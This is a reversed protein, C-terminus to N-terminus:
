FNFGLSFRHVNQLFGFDHYGYDLKLTHNGLVFKIGGGASFGGTDNEFKQGIRLAFMDKYWYELGANYKELNDSPHSGELNFIAQHEERSFVEMSGGFKFNIPLPCDEQIFKLDPGFNSLVMAIKFKRFGTRYLTGVDMGWGSAMEEEYLENLYKFTVGISFRDTLNRAYSLTLAYDKASFTEGTIAIDGIGPKLPERREMDGADLMYFALGCVGGIQPTPYALGLFEYNIDAPYDIHTLVVERSELQTLGAPNYYVASADDVLGIFAEGMGVARASIGIELFQAGSTGVKAQGFCFGHLFSVLFLVLPLTIIKRM